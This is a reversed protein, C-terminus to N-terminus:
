SRAEFTEIFEKFSEANVVFVTRETERFAEHLSRDEFFRDQINSFTKRFRIHPVSQFVVDTPLEGESLSIEKPDFLAVKLKATTVIVPIYLRNVFKNSTLGQAIKKKWHHL